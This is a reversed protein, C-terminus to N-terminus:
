TRWNGQGILELQNKYHKYLTSRHGVSIITTCPLNDNLVGHIKDELQEDMASTAEDLFLWKPKHLLVRVFAIRQQEGLSFINTWEEEKDLYSSLHEIDCMRLAEKIQEDTKSIKGPYLLVERLTGLPLYSKQPLFMKEGQPYVIKGKSYPWIGALTRLLTSKGTGSKGKILWTTAKAFDVNLDKILASGDPLLVTLGELQLNNLGEVFEQQEPYDKKVSQMHLQFSTLRKVVAVWEALVVYSDVFFSLADQVRGFASSIQMLGGLNIQKTLYRPISLILPVIVSIQSYSTTLGIVLKQRKAIKWLNDIVSVIKKGFYDGEFQEGKYFAVNESNERLRVMSYRFDAEYKQQDFNLKGLVRGIRDTFYTGFIAYLLTVWVMYGPLVFDIGIFKLDLDGSLNWLIGVFSVFLVINKIFGLILALTNTVFLRVDDSIRQDPNDTDKEFVQMLYYTRATLWDKVYEKTMWKRWRIQLVQQLYYAYVSIIVHVAAIYCFEEVGKIIAENQYEQLASYFRNYWKNLLVLMYVQGLSLVVIAVFLATASYKESSKWYSKVLLWFNKLFQKDIM